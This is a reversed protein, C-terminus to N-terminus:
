QLFCINDGHCGWDVVNVLHLRSVVKTLVKSSKGKNVINLPRCKCDSTKHVTSEPCFKKAATKFLNISFQIM